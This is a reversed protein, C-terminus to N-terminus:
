AHITAKMCVHTALYGQTAHASAHAKVVVDPRHNVACPVFGYVEMLNGYLADELEGKKARMVGAFFLAILRRM